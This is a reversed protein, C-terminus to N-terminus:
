QPDYDEFWRAVLPQGRDPAVLTVRIRFEPPDTCAKSVDTIAQQPSVREM